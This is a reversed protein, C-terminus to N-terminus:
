EAADQEIPTLVHEPIESLKFRLGSIVGPIRFSGGAAIAEKLRQIAWDIQHVEDAVREDPNRRPRFTSPEYAPEYWDDQDGAACIQDHFHDKVRGVTL